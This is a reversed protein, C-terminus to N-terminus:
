RRKRAASMRARARAKKVAERCAAHTQKRSSLSSVPHAIRRTCIPCRPLATECDDFAGTVPITPFIRYVTLAEGTQRQVQQEKVRHTMRGM